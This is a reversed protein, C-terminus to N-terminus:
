ADKILTSRLIKAGNVSSSTAAISAAPALSALNQSLVNICTTGSSINRALPQHHSPKSGLHLPRHQHISNDVPPM